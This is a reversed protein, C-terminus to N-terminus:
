KNKAFEFGLKMGKFSGALASITSLQSSAASVTNVLNLLKTADFTLGMQTGTVSVYAQVKVGSRSKITITKNTADFTYTGNMTKQGIAYQCEGNEAFAIAFTGPAIGVKQYYGALKQEVTNAAFAGGAQSLLNESEFQVCPQTYIWTGVITSKNTMLGGAFTSILNGILNGTNNSTATSAGQGGSVLGGLVSGLLNTGGTQTNAPTNATNATSM